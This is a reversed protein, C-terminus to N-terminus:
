WSALALINCGYLPCQGRNRLQTTAAKQGRSTGRRREERQLVFVRDGIVAMSM